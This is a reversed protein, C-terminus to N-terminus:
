NRLKDLEIIQKSNFDKIKLRYESIKFAIERFDSYLHNKGEKYVGLQINSEVECLELFSKMELFDKYIEQPIYDDNVQNLKIISFNLASILRELLTVKQSPSYETDGEILGYVDYVSAAASDLWSDIVYFTKVSNELEKIREKKDQYAIQKKFLIVAIIGALAAGIFGGFTQIWANADISNFFEVM